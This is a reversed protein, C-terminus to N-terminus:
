RSCSQWFPAWFIYSLPYYGFQIVIRVYNMTLKQIRPWNRRPSRPRKCHMETYRTTLNIVVSLANILNNYLPRSEAQGSDQTIWSRLHSSGATFSDRVPFLRKLRKLFLYALLEPVLGPVGILLTPLYFLCHLIFIFLLTRWAISQYLFSLTRDSTFGAVFELISRFPWLERGIM